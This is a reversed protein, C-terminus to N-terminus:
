PMVTNVKANRNRYIYVGIGIVILSVVVILITLKTKNMCMYMKEGELGEMLPSCRANGMYQRNTFAESANMTTWNSRDKNNKKDDM